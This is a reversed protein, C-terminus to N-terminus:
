LRTMESFYKQQIILMLDNQIKPTVEALKQGERSKYFAILENIEEQTFYKDYLAMEENQIKISLEKLIQLRNIISDKARETATHSPNIQQEIQILTPLRSSITRDLMSDKHM